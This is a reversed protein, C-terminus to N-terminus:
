VYPRFLRNAFRKSFYGRKLFKFRCLVVWKRGIHPRKSYFDVGSKERASPSVFATETRNRECILETTRRFVQFADIKAAKTDSLMPKKISCGRRRDAALWVCENSGNLGRNILIQLVPRPHACIDAAFPISPCRSDKMPVFDIDSTCHKMPIREVTQSNRTPHEELVLSNPLHATM